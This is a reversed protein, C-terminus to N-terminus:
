QFQVLVMGGTQQTVGPQPEVTVAYGTLRGASLKTAGITRVLAYGHGTADVSVTPGPVWQREYVLWLQYVKNAPLPPLDDVFLAGARASPDWYYRGYASPAMYTGVLETSSVGRQSVLNVAADKTQAERQADSLLSSVSVLRGHLDTLEGAQATAAASVSAREASVDNVRKQAVSGWALAGISIVVLAAAAAPWWRRARPERVDRLISASALIRPKLSARAAVLPVALALATGEDRAAAALQACSHCRSLHAELARREDVDLAGIAHADIHEAAEDCDMRM